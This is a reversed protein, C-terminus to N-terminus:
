FRALTVAILPPAARVQPFPQAPPLRPPPAAPSPALREIAAKVEELQRSYEKRETLAGRLLIGGVILLGVACVLVVSVGVTFGTSFGGGGTLAILGGMMVALLDIVTIAGGIAIMTVAGGIGPREDELRRTETELQARTWGEYAPQEGPLAAQVEVFRPALAAASPEGASACLLLLATALM